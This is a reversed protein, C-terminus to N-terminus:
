FTFDSKIPTVKSNRVVVTKIQITRKSRGRVEYRVGNPWGAIDNATFMRKAISPTRIVMVM